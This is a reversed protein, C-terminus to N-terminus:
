ASSAKVLSIITVAALLLTLLIPGALKWRPIPLSSRSVTIVAALLIVPEYYRYFANHNATQAVIFALVASSWILRERRPFCMLWALLIGGGIASMAVILLSSRDM